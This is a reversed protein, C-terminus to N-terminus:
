ISINPVTLNKLNSVTSNWTEIYATPDLDPIEAAVLTGIMGGSATAANSWANYVYGKAQERAVEKQLDSLTVYGTAARTVGSIGNTGIDTWTFIGHNVYTDAVTRHTRAQVEETQAVIQTNLSAKNATDQIINQMEQYIKGNDGLGVVNQEADKIPTGYERLLQAQRLQKEILSTEADNEMKDKQADLLDLQYELEKKKLELDKEQAAWQLGVQMASGTISTTMGVIAEAIIKDREPGVLTNDKFFDQLTEKARDYIGDPGLAVAMLEKQKEIVDIQTDTQIIIAM